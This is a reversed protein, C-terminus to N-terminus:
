RMRTRLALQRIQPALWRAIRRAGPVSYHIGDRRLAVGEYEAPCEAGGCVFTELDLLHVRDPERHAHIHLLRNLHDTRWRAGPIWEPPGVEDPRGFSPTTLLVVPAGDISLTETALALRNLFRDDFQASGFALWNEGVKRDFVEWTGVYLVTMDPQFRDIYSSWYILCNEWEDRNTLVQGGERRPGTSLGCFFTARNILEVEFDREISPIFGAGLSRAASDGVLLVRTPARAGPTPETGSPVRAAPMITGPGPTPISTSVVLVAVLAVVSVASLAIARGASLAGRRIPQEVIWYSLVSVGLTTLLRV